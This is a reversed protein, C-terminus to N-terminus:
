RTIRCRPLAKRLEKLGADTVQTSSLDVGVIPKGKAKQDRTIPGGLDKIAQVEQGESESANPRAHPRGCSGVALLLLAVAVGTTAVRKTKM